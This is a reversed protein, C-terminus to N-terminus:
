STVLTHFSPDIYDPGCKFAQVKFKRALLRMLALSITTKGEGSRIAALIFANHQSSMTKNEM